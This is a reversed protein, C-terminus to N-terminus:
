SNKITSDHWVLIINFVIMLIWFELDMFTVGFYGLLAGFFFAPLYTGIFSMYRNPKKPEDSLESIIVKGQHRNSRSEILEQTMIEKLKKTTATKKKPLDLKKPRAM